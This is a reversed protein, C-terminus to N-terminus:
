PSRARKVEMVNKYIGILKKTCETSDFKKVSEMANKKMEDPADLTKLIGKACDQASYEFLHGNYSDRVIEPIVRHRLGAVPTGMALAETMVIGLTEFTSALVLADASAYYAALEEDPVFGTFIVHEQLKKRKVISRYQGMSPGKGVILLKADPKKKRIIPLADFILELNKEESVRGAHLIVEANGLDHKERVWSGNISPDFRTFDIGPSVFDTYKMGPVKERLENIATESPAVVGDSRQCLSRLYRWSMKVLADKGIPFPYYQTAETVWTHFHLLVPLDLWRSAFMAKLAMFAVGHNHLM